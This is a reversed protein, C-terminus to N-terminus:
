ISLEYVQSEYLYQEDSLRRLTALLAQDYQICIFCEEKPKILSIKQMLEPTIFDPVLGLMEDTADICGCTQNDWIHHFCGIVNESPIFLYVVVLKYRDDKRM